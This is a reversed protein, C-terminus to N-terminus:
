WALPEGVIRHKTYLCKRENTLDFYSFFVELHYKWDEYVYRDGFGGFVLVYLMDCVVELADITTQTTIAM